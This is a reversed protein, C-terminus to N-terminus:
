GGGDIFTKPFFCKEHVDIWRHNGSELDVHFIRYFDFLHRVGGVVVKIVPKGDLFGARLSDVMEDAFDVWFGCPQRCISMSSTLSSSPMQASATTTDVVDKNNIMAKAM